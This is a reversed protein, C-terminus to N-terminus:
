PKPVDHPESRKDRPDGPRLNEPPPERAKECRVNRDQRGGLRRCRENRPSDKHRRSRMQVTDADADVGGAVAMTNGEQAGIALRGGLGDGNKFASGAICRQLLAEFLQVCLMRLRVEVNADVGGALVGGIEFVEKAAKLQGHGQGDALRLPVLIILLGMEGFAGGVVRFALSHRAEGDDFQGAAVM